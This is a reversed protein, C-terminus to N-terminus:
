GGGRGRELLLDVLSRANDILIELEEERAAQIHVGATVTVTCNLQRAIVEAADRAIVEDQHGVLNLVSSTTSWERKGKQLSPRPLALVVSGIHPKEGGFIAVVAGAPCRSLSGWIRYRGEGVEGELLQM